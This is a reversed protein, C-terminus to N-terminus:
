MDLENIVKRIEDQAHLTGNNKGYLNEVISVKKLTEKQKNKLQSLELKKNAIENTLQEVKTRNRYFTSMLADETKQIEFYTIDEISSSFPRNM